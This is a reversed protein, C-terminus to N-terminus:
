RQLYLSNKTPAGSSVDTWRTVQALLPVALWIPLLWWVQSASAHITGGRTPLSRHACLVASM